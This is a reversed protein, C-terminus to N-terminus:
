SSTFHHFEADVALVMVVLLGVKRGQIAMPAVGVDARDCPQSDPTIAVFLACTQGDFAERDAFDDRAAARIAIEPLRLSM